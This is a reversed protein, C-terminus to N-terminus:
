EGVAKPKGGTDPWRKWDRERVEAWTHEIIKELDLSNTNCYSMMYIFLDGLADGAQRHYNEEDISRIGQEFKLHAHTREGVEEVIGLLADHPKQRPFNHNLWYSHDTQLEAIRGV